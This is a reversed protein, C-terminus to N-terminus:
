SYRRQLYLERERETAFFRHGEECQGDLDCYVTTSPTGSTDYLCAKDNVYLVHLTKLLYHGGYGPVRFVGYCLEGTKLDAIAM